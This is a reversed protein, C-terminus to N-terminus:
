DECVFNGVDSEIALVYYEGGDADVLYRTNNVPLRVMEGEGELVLDVEGDSQVWEYGAAAADGKYPANRTRSFESGTLSNQLLTSAITQM